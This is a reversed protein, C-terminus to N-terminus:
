LLKMHLVVMSVGTFGSIAGIFADQDRPKMPFLCYQDHLQTAV